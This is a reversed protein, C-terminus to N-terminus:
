FLLEIICSVINKFKENLKCLRIICGLFLFISVTIMIPAIIETNGLITMSSIVVIFSLIIGTVYLMTEKM